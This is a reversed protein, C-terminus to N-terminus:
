GTSMIAHDKLDLDEVNGDDTTATRTAGQRSPLCQRRVLVGRLYHVELGCRVYDTQSSSIENCPIHRLLSGPYFGSVEFRAWASSRWLDSHEASSDEFIQHPSGSTEAAGSKARGLSERQFTEFSAQGTLCLRRTEYVSVHHSGRHRLTECLECKCGSHMESYVCSSLQVVESSM